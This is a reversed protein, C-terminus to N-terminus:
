GNNKDGEKFINEGFVHVSAEEMFKEFTDSYHRHGPDYSVRRRSHSISDDRFIKSCVDSMTEKVFFCGSLDTHIETSEYKSGDAATDISKKVASITDTFIVIPEGDYAGHVVIFERNM